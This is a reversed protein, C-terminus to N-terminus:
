QKVGIINTTKRKAVHWLDFFHEVVPKNLERCKKPCTERMLKAISRHRDSIFSKIKMATTFLYAFARQHGLFEMVSSSGAENCQMNLVFHFLIQYLATTIVVTLIEQNVGKCGSPNGM